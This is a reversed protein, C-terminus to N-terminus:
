RTRLTLTRDSQQIDLHKLFSMGLLVEEGQFGPAIIGEVNSLEINGLRVTELTTLYGTSVGNATQLQIPRGPAANFREAVAGPIAISTAGTDVLFVAGVGNIAGSAVYHGRRNAILEVEATGGDLARGAVSTNPNYQRDYWGDFLFALLGIAFVWGLVIFTAGLGRTQPDRRPHRFPDEPSM